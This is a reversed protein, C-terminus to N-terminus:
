IGSQNLMMGLRKKSDWFHIESPKFHESDYDKGYWAKMEKYEKGKKKTMISCFNEYGPTSGCDEPPCARAGDICKVKKIEEDIVKEFLVDHEWSDGFDYEYRVKKGAKKFITDIKVKWGAKIKIGYDDGDPDPIGIHYKNAGEIKFAHLHSDLWGMSDQIAVHLDWFSYDEPVVIRRWIPPNTDLLTIKFQMGKMTCSREKTDILEGTDVNQLIFRILHHMSDNRQPHRIEHIRYKGNDGSETEIQIFDNIIVKRRYLEFAVKAPIWLDLGICTREVKYAKSPFSLYAEGCGEYPELLMQVESLKTGNITVESM